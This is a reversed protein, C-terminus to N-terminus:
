NEAQLCEAQPWNSAISISFYLVLGLVLDLLQIVSGDKKGDDHEM